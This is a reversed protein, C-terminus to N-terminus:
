AAEREPRKGERAASEGQNAHQKFPPLTGARMLTEMMGFQAQTIAQVLAFQAEAILTMSSTIQEFLVPSLNAAVFANAMDTLRKSELPTTM